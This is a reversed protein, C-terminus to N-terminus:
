GGGKRGRRGRRKGDGTKVAAAGAGAGRDIAERGPREGAAHAANRDFDGLCERRQHYPFFFVPWVGAPGPVVPAPQALGHDDAAAFGGGEGNEGGEVAGLLDSSCVDSSWDIIRM